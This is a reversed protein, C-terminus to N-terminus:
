MNIYLKYPILRNSFSFLPLTEAQHLNKAPWLFASPPGYNAWGQVLSNPLFRIVFSIAFEETRVMELIWHSQGICSLQPAMSGSLSSTACAIPLKSLELAIAICMFTLLVNSM